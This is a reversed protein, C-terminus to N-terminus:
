TLYSTPHVIYYLLASYLVTYCLVASYLLTCYPLASYLVASDLLTSQSTSTYTHTRHHARVQLLQQQVQQLEGPCDSVGSLHCVLLLDSDRCGDMGLFFLSFGYCHMKMQQCFGHCQEQSIGKNRQLVDSKDFVAIFGKRHFM